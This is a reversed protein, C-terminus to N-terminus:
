QKQEQSAEMQACEPCEIQSPLLRKGCGLCKVRKDRITWTEHEAHCFGEAENQRNIIFAMEGCMPCERVPDHIPCYVYPWLGERPLHCNCSSTM